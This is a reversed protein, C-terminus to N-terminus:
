RRLQQSVTARAFSFGKTEPIAARVVPRNKPVAESAPRSAPTVPSEVGATAASERPKGIIGADAVIEYDFTPLTNVDAGICKKVSLHRDGTEATKELWLSVPTVAEILSHMRRARQSVPRPGTLLATVEKEDCLWVIRRLNEIATELDDEKLWPLISDVVLRDPQWEIVMEMLSEVSGSSLRIEKEVLQGQAADEYQLLLLREESMHHVLPTGISEGLIILDKPNSTTLMLVKEKRFLGQAAFHLSFITKGTDAAGTLLVSRGRFVGGGLAEDLFRIGWDTKM